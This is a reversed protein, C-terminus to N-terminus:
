QLLDSTPFFSAWAFWFATILPVPKLAPSNGDISKGTRIDWTIGATSINTGEVAFSKIQEDSLEALEYAFATATESNYLIVVQPDAKDLLVFKENSLKEYTVAIDYNDLRVGIVKTKGSTRKFNDIRGFIGLKTSDSFYGSYHSGKDFKEPKSLLKGNPYLKKFEAFTTITSPYLTLETGRQPGQIAKGSIQSWLTKTELDQM